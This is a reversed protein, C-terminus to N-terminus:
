VAMPFTEPAEGAEWTSTRELPEIARTEDFHLVADFQEPLSAELYHSVFETEPLYLVGIAREIRPERLAELSPRLGRMPLLFRPLMTAHFLAEYSGDLAPRVRKREAPAGWDSAATVTGRSTTFGVLFAVDGHRQRVLQGVNIQGRERRSTARADGLHSNHAWVVIKAPKQRTELHAILADLTDVMHTDRLNWSDTRGEYMTRYYREASRVIQANQVAYFLEDEAARGDRRAYDAARQQLEVLQRVVEEECPEAVGLTTMYGYRQADDGFHDFCGYRSRARKAAEPDVRDLYGLVAEISSFLSYLDIGYFGVGPAPHRENHDRLWGVFDLVDANRWMWAPFRRFGRLAEEADAADSIGRVYRNVQYADPWDAEAAVATFGKEAILRKTIEARARYFEHTGHSAEGLLVLRADGIADLLPDYDDAGGGLPFAAERLGRLLAEDAGISTRAEGRRREKVGLVQPLLCVECSPPRPRRAFFFVGIAEM